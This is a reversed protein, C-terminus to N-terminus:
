IRRCSKRFIIDAKLIEHDEANLEKNKQKLLNKVAIKGIQEVPQAITTIDLYDNIEEDDWVVLSIDSPIQLKQKKVM